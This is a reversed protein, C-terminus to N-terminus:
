VGTVLIAVLAITSSSRTVVTGLAWWTLVPIQANLMLDILRRLATTEEEARTFSQIAPMNGLVDSVREAVQNSYVDVQKQMIETRRLVINMVIGIVVVLVILIAGLRWNVALTTPLLVVIAVLAAFHERFFSLWVGFMGTSGEIMVKLLRGTHASSHFSM